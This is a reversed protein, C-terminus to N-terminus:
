ASARWWLGDRETLARLSTLGGSVGAAGGTTLCTFSEGIRKRM